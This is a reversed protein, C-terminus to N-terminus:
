KSREPRLNDLIPLPKVMLVTLYVSPVVFDTFTTLVFYFMYVVLFYGKLFTCRMLMERHPSAKRAYLENNYIANYFFSLFDSYKKTVSIVLKKYYCLWNQM